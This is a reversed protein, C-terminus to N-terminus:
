QKVVFVESMVHRVQLADVRDEEACQFIVSKDNKDVAMVNAKHKLLVSITQTHGYNAALLLATFQDNDHM